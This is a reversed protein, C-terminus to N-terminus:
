GIYQSVWMLFIVVRDVALNTLFWVNHYTVPLLARTTRQEPWNIIHQIEFCLAIKKRSETPLAFTSIFVTSVM